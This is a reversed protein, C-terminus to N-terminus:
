RARFRRPKKAAVAFGNGSANRECQSPSWRWSTVAESQSRFVTNLWIKNRHELVRIGAYLLAAVLVFAGFIEMATLFSIIDPGMTHPMTSGDLANRPADRGFSVCDPAPPVARFKKVM